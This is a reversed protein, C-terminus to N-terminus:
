TVGCSRGRLAALAIERGRVRTGDPLEYWGGGLHKPEQRPETDAASVIAAESTQQVASETEGQPAMATGTKPPWEIRPIALSALEIMRAENPHRYIDGPSFYRKTLKCKFPHIVRAEYMTGNVERLATDVLRCTYCRHCPQGDSTPRRCYWCLRLLDPPMAWIVEAKWMHQIPHEFVLERECVEYSINRYRRHARRMEASDPGAPASDYHNPRIVHRIHRLSPNALLIGIWLAWICHDRVLYHVTGYDFASESYTFNTFGHSRMWNLIRQVAEAEYDLRGERNKLHVHHVHM